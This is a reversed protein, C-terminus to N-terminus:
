HFTFLKRGLLPRTSFENLRLKLELEEKVLKIVKRLNMNRM